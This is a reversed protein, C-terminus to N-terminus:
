IRVPPLISGPHPPPRPSYLQARALSVPQLFLQGSGPPGHPGGIQVGPVPYFAHQVNAM